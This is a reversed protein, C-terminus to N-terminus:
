EKTAEEDKKAPAGFLEREMNALAQLQLKLADKVADQAKDTDMDEGLCAVLMALMAEKSQRDMVKKVHERYEEKTIYIGGDTKLEM